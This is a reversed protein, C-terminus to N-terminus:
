LDIMTMLHVEKDQILNGIADFCSKYHDTEKHKALCEENDWNEYFIFVAPNAIDQHLMYEICGAESRTPNVLKILENKVDAISEHKAVLKAVVTLIPM